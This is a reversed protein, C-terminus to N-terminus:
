VCDRKAQPKAASKEVTSLTVGGLVLAAGAAQMMGLREGLLLAAFSVAFVPNLYGYVTSGSAGLDSVARTWFLKALMSAFVVSYAVGAWAVPSAHSVDWSIVGVPSLLLLFVSALLNAWASVRLPSYVRLLAVGFVSYSAWAISSAVVLLDGVIADGHLSLGDAQVVLAVGAVGVLVGAVRRPMLREQGIAVAMAMAFIPSINSILSANTATTMKLGVQWLACSVGTGVCSILLLRPWHSRAVSVDGEARQAMAMLVAGAIGMRMIAVLFPDIEAVTVKMTAVNLGWIAIAGLAPLSFRRGVSALALGFRTRASGTTKHLPNAELM